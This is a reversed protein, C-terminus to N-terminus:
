SVSKREGEKLKQNYWSRDDNEGGRRVIGLMQPFFIVRSDLALFFMLPYTHTTISSKELFFFFFLFFFSLPFFFFFFVSFFVYM